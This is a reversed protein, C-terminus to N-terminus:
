SLEFLFYYYGPTAQAYGFGPAHGHATRRPNFLLLTSFRGSDPDSDHSGARHDETHWRGECHRGLAQRGVEHHQM